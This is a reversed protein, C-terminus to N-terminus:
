GRLSDFSGGSDVATTRQDRPVGITVTGSCNANAPVTATFAVRYVRGDATGSREARVEVAGPTAVLRADPSVDGDGLGEVPEDQTVGTVSLTVPDGDPDVAGSLSAPVLRHDPPWLSAVNPKVGSCDPPRNATVTVLAFSNSGIEPISNHKGDNVVLTVLYIGPVAYVHSPRAGTGTTADGFHWLYILPDGDPDSSRSGNLVVPQGVAATYFPGGVHALPRRNAGLPPEPAPPEPGDVTFHVANTFRNGAADTAEVRLRHPGLERLVYGSTVATTEDGHSLEARQDALGSGDDSVAFALTHPQIVVQDATPQAITVAPATKDLKITVTKEAGQNGARDTAFFSITTDGEGNITVDTSSGEVTTPASSQAGEARWTIAQVGSGDDTAQLRVTADSQHWGADNSVPTISGVKADPPTKDIRVVVSGGPSEVNGANDTAFFSVTTEGENALTFNATDGTVPGDDTHTHTIDRVGSGGTDTAQLTVEVDGRFWGSPSPTSSLTAATVPAAKDAGGGAAAHMVFAQFERGNHTGWGTIDGQGNVDSPNLSTWGSGPPLAQSLDTVMGNSWLLPKVSYDPMTLYGVIQGAENIGTATGPGLDTMVGNQWVFAHRELDSTQAWGVVQGASNVDHAESSWGGLTGLDIMGTHRQWLFAHERTENIDPSERNRDSFGVVHGTDSVATAEARHAGPLTGISRLVGNEWIVARRPFFYRGDIAEAESWGVIVGSSNIDTARSGFGPEFTRPLVGLDIAAGNRWLTARTYGTGSTTTWGM